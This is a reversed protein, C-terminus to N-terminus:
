TGSGKQAPEVPQQRGSAADPLRWASLNYRSRDGQWEYEVQRLVPGAEVLEPFHSTLELINQQEVILVTTDGLGELSLAELLPVAYDQGLYFVVDAREHRYFAVRDGEGLLQKLELAFAKDQRFNDSYPLVVTFLAWM